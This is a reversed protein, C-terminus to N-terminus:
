ELLIHPQIESRAAILEKSMTLFAADVNTATKASTELFSIGLKEAFKQATEESVQKLDVLDAKNGILLKSTNENAYRDVESLWEEVHDFSEQSTVDYVMAIGDSCVDSGMLFFVSDSYAIKLEWM